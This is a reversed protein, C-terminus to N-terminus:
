SALVEHAWDQFRALGKRACYDEVSERFGRGLALSCVYGRLRERGNAQNAVISTWKTIEVASRDNDM